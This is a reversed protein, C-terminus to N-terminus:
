VKANNRFWVYLGVLAILTVFGIIAIGYEVLFDIVIGSIDTASHVPTYNAM